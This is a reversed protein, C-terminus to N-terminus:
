ARPTSLQHLEGMNGPFAYVHKGFHPNDAPGIGASLTHIAESSSDFGKQSVRGPPRRIHETSCRVELGIDASDDM